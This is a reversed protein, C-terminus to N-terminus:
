DQKTTYEPINRPLPKRLFLEALIWAKYITVFPTQGGSKWERVPFYRLRNRRSPPVEEWGNESAYRRERFLDDYLLGRRNKTTERFRPVTNLDPSPKQM